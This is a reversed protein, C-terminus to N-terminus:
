LKWKALFLSVRCRKDCQDGWHGAGCGNECLEGSVGPPCKCAGTAADCEAGNLCNCDQGCDVGYHGPSCREACLLGTFGAVCACGDLDSTCEGNRCQDCTQACDQGFFGPACREILIGTMLQERGGQYIQKIEGDYSSELTEYNTFTM